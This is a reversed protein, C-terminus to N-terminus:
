DATPTAALQAAYADGLGHTAAAQLMLQLYARRPRVAVAQRFLPLVRYLWVSVSGGALIRAVLPAAGRHYRNPHGEKSDIAHLTPTDVQLAVGLLTQGPAPAVNAAAGQRAPSFYDWVLRYGDLAAPQAALIGDTPHGQAALWCRLDPLHMNSGYAFVWHVRRM